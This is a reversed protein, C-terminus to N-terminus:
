FFLVYQLMSVGNSFLADVVDPEFSQQNDMKKVFPAIVQQALKSVTEKMMQEDESLQTVPLSRGLAQETSSAQKPSGNCYPQVRFFGRFGTALKHFSVLL